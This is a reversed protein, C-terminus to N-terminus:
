PCSDSFAHSLASPADSWSTFRPIQVVCALEHWLFMGCGVVVEEEEEKVVGAEEDQIM